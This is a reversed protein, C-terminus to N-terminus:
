LKLLQIKKEDGQDTPYYYRRDILEDPMYQQDVYHNTFDHPNMFDNGHGLRNANTYLFDKIAPPITIMQHHKVDHEADQIAKTIANSKPALALYISAHALAYRCEPMGVYDVAKAALVAVNLAESDAMGIDYTASVILRRAIYKPDEGSELMRILYYLAADPDSGKISLIFASITDHHEDADKDYRFARKQICDEAIELTLHICSGPTSHIAVELANLAVRADGNSVDALFNLAQEDLTIDFSSLVEDKDIARNILIKIAEQSLAKLQFVRSRSILAKNVEFYPNETTAGILIITGDEVFPLLVDQQLKNFRHLEDIFLISRKHEFTFHEKAKILIEEIEKKGSQSANLKYFYSSTQHSIVQALSTKGTGPPGYLIISDVFDAQIARYLLKRHGLIHEQGVIEDLHKPRMRKALPVRTSVGENQFYEFLDM